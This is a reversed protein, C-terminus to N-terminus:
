EFELRWRLDAGLNGLVSSSVDNVNDYSGQVSVGRSLKWEINSRVERNESLGSTITARVDKTIRKGISVTPEPRGTRSSYQSGIRFEDILPVTKRVAQDFGTVASLAEIGVSQALSGALGRDLEARTMGIQLLLVIDDQSLPPDSTFRVQPTETDGYAHMSIRWKGAASASTAADSAAATELDSSSAYRRYETDAHVDLRPAIRLPNDFTAKGDRVSFHHGQLFIKSGREVRLLGRAGYTQNNGTLKIGGPAVSLRMDILNNTIRLPRPSVVNVDFTFVNDKPDYTEVITRGRGTLQDLDLRFAMPRTYSFQTLMVIGAINPLATTTKTADNPDYTAKLNANATLKVGEAVPLKVDTAVLTASGEGLSLGDLSLRANLSLDGTTGARANSNHVVIEGDEVLVNITIEDLPLPFDKIRLLGKKLSASGNLRPVDWPGDFRLNAEVSGEARTVQPLDMGLKALDIPQLLVRLGLTPSTSLADVSGGMVLQATLGNSLKASVPMTPIRVSDGSLVVPETIKGVDLRHGDMVLEAQQLFLRVEALGPADLPMEHIHVDATLRGEPPSASFAVGRKLNAFAGLDLGNLKLKGSLIKQQQQTIQIDTFSIQKNFLQGSLRFLGEPEDDGYQQLTALPQEPPPPPRPKAIRNGCRTKVTQYAVPKDTPEVYVRFRSANLTDPGIRLPSVNVDIDGRMRRITGSLHGVASMSAEPVVRHGHDLDDTQQVDDSQAPLEDDDPENSFAASFASLAKLPISTASVDARLQNDHSIKARGLLTGGGKRLVISHVAINLGHDGADPDDWLFDVDMSGKDFPEGWVNIDSLGMQTRVHLRGAGCRDRAGGLVYALKATGFAIGHLDNFRGDENLRVTEFFDALRLGSGRSDLTGDVVVDADGDAFDLDLEPVSVVSGGHVLIADRLAVVLPVFKFRAKRIDGIPFGGFNFNALRLEGEIVPKDFTGHGNAQISGRGRMPINVLPSIDAVDINSGEHVTLGFQDEFGLLVTARLQSRKTAIHYSKLVIASPTVQFTGDLVAREVGVMKRKVKAISPQDYVAFDRTKAVMPGSMRPPNITGGFHAVRVESLDWGVHSNPHAALDDLLDPMNVGDIDIKKARLPIGPKFPQVVASAIRVKGGGWRLRVDRAQIEKGDLEVAADLSHAIMRSDIGIGGGTLLARPRPLKDGEDWNLQETSLSVWGTIPPLALFRHAIPLPLRAALRGDISSLKGDDLRLRMAALQLRLARWDNEVLQCKPRTAANPDFDAAGHLDLRRLLLESSTIRARLDLRCVVDEDVLDQEPLSPHSHRHDIETRGSRLSVEMPGDRDVTVDLDIEDSRVRLVRPRSARQGIVSLDIQANTLSVASLPLEDDKKSGDSEPLKYDLNAIAGDRIVVRVRPEEITVAGLDPKAALLSFVRPRAVISRATLFPSGGDSAEIRVDEIAIQLPWPRLRLQYQARVRFEDALVRATKNAAWRQVWDLRVLAGLALPVLGFLAFVVCLVRAVIGGWDRRRRWPKRAGNGNARKGPEAADGSGNPQQRTTAM